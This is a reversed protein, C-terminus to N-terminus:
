ALVSGQIGSRAITVVNNDGYWTTTGSATAYELWALFHRGIGPNGRYSARMQQVTGLAAVAQYAADSDAALANPADLGIGGSVIVNPATSSFSAAISAEASDEDRGRVFDLQNATNGNAQRLTATTYNWSNTAEFVGM